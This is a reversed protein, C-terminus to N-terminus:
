HSRLYDIIARRDDEPASCGYTHGQSGYAKETVNPRPTLCFLQELSDVSGNHLFRNFAWIGVLRPAKIKHTLTDGPELEIGCCPAGTLNPDAFRKLQDDVGIDSYEYLTRSMGRPGDHCNLCGQSAFLEGGRAVNSAPPPNPNVPARLSELFEVFPELKADTWLSKDGGGLHAFGRAFNYLSPTGATYGLMAGDMGVAAREAANTNGWINGVKHVVHVGDDLPLPQIFPDMTGTRWSAYHHENEPTFAPLTTGLLPLVSAILSLGILPDAAMRDLLPQSVALAAPDHAAADAGPLAMTPLLATMLNTAGYQFAYNPAGVAFRGDPLKGFHCSACTFAETEVNTTSFPKGVYFGLPLKDPSTPDTFLGLKEFGAGVENPFSNMLWTMLPKPLGMTGFGEYFYMYKGCLLKKKRNTRDAEYAACAGKLTGQELIANLDASVNTLGESTDPQPAFPDRKSADAVDLPTSRDVVVVDGNGARDASTGGDMAGSDTTTGGGGARGGGGESSSGGAGGTGAGSDASVDAGSDVSVDARGADVTGGGGAGGSGGSGGFGGSGGPTKDDSCASLFLGAVVVISCHKM